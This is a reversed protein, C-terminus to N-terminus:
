IKLGNPNVMDLEANIMKIALQELNVKPEWGLARIKESGNILMPYEAKFEPPEELYKELSIGVADCCAAAYEYISIGIGDGICIEYIDDQMLFCHIANAIDGAWAWEKIISANGIVLKSSIGNKIEVVNRAVQRAVSNPPRLPSEHNFLFGVYVKRGRQKYYRAIQLAEVRAMAYATDTVLQCRENILGGESKFVLASSALFVKSNPVHRDVAEIIALAGDVIAKHNELVFEHRTSSKAALHFVIDPCYKQITNEVTNFDSVDIAPGIESGSHTFVFVKYGRSLLLENLFIGDQGGGGFIVVCNKLAL